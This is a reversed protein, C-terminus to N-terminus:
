FVLFGFAGSSKCIVPMWIEDGFDLRTRLLKRECFIIRSLLFIKQSKETPLSNSFSFVLLAVVKAYLQCGKWHEFIFLYSSRKDTNRAGYIKKISWALETFIAPYQGRERKASKHFGVEDQDMFVCFSFKPLVLGDQDREQDTIYTSYCFQREKCLSLTTRM